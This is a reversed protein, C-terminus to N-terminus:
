YVGLIVAALDSLVCMRIRVGVTRPRSVVVPVHHARLPSRSLPVTGVPPAGRRIPRRADYIHEPHQSPLMAPNPRAHQRTSTTSHIINNVYTRVPSRELSSKTVCVGMRCQDHIYVGYDPAETEKNENSCQVTTM